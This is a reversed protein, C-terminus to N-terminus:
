SYSKIRAKFSEDTENERIIYKEAESANKIEVLGDPTCGLIRHNRRGYAAAKRADSGYCIDGTGIVAYMKITEM